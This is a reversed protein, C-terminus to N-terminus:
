SLVPDDRPGPHVCGHLAAQGRLVANGRDHLYLSVRWAAQPSASATHTM